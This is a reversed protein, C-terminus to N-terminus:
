MDYREAESDRPINTILAKLFSEWDRNKVHTGIIQYDLEINKAFERTIKENLNGKDAEFNLTNKLGSIFEDWVWSGRRKIAHIYAKLEEDTFIHSLFVFPHIHDIRDGAKELQSKYKLLELLSKRALTKMIFLIDKQETHKVPEYFDRTVASLSMQVCVMTFLLSLVLMLRNM